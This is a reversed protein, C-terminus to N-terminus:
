GFFLSFRALPLYVFILWLIYLSFLSLGALLCHLSDNVSMLIRSTIDGTTKWVNQRAAFSFFFSILIDVDDHRERTCSSLLSGVGCQLRGKIVNSTEYVVHRKARRGSSLSHLCGLPSLHFRSVSYFFFIWKRIWFCVRSLKETKRTHIKILKEHESLEPTHCM